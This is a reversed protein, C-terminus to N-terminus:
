QSAELAFQLQSGYGQRFAIKGDRYYGRLTELLADRSLSLCEQRVTVFIEDFIFYGDGGPYYETLKHLAALVPCVMSVPPAQEARQGRKTPVPPKPAPPQVPPNIERRVRVHRTGFGKPKIAITRTGHKGHLTVTIM